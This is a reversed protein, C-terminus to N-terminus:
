YATTRTRHYPKDIPLKKQGELWLYDNVDVSQISSDSQQLREKIREVADITNARIEVERPDGSLIQVYNDVSNVLEDSYQFVGHRRLVQPLKYDACATLDELGSLDISSDDLFSHGIDSVLLQARKYFHLAEGDYETVDHFSPFHGIILNYLRHASRNSEEVLNRFKGQYSDTVVQGIEQLIKHRSSFLPIEVNGALIKQLDAQPIEALYATDNLSVREDFATGLSALMAWSGDYTGGQRKVTWKPEGWYSFSISNFLVLYALRKETPLEFMKYPAYNLWHRTKGKDFQECFEELKGEDIRVFKSNQAVIKAQDKLGNM